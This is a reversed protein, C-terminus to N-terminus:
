FTAYAPTSGAIVLTQAQDSQWFKRVVGDNRLLARSPIQVRPRRRSLCALVGSQEVLAKKFYSPHLIFTRLSM